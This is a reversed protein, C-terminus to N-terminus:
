KVIAQGIVNLFSSVQKKRSSLAEDLTKDGYIEQVQDPTWEDGLQEMTEIFTKIETKTMTKVGEKITLTYTVLIIIDNTWM